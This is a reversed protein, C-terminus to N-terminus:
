DAPVTREQAWLRLYAVKEAMVVSLPRTRNMEALVHTSKLPEGVLKAAYMASVVAQEIEAGSFGAATGALAALDFRALDHGRKLLHIRLIEARQGEGPLDVFFIEDMRGKRVLEPPLREIDNSTAIMFVRGDREAMWTLLTGLVRRSEGGDADSSALGKEIEDLWLVCPAMADAVKLSERLNRETEGLYKNYLAGFDLRMLPVGWASAVAKAAMSKGCGQVGLLLIGKPVELKTEAPDGLFAERRALLWSKLNELGALDELRVSANELSLVGDRGLLERKAQYIRDFDATTLTGDNLLVQRIVRRADAAGLGSLHQLLGEVAEPEGMPECGPNAARLRAVEDKLIALVEDRTLTPLDFHASLKELDPPLQMGHGLLFLTNGERSAADKLLRAHVPDELFPHVDLLLYFGPAIAGALQRLLEAPKALGSSSTPGSDVRVLGESVKWRYCPVGRKGALATVLVIARAEEHTDITILRFGADALLELERPLDM